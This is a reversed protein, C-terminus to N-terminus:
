PEVAPDQNRRLHGQEVEDALAGRDAGGAVVALFDEGSVVLLRGATVASVTASRPASRLLALEGFADGPGLLGPRPRGDVAVSFEGQAIAYYLHGEDGQTIVEAGADIDLWASSRALRVMENPPLAALFPIRSLVDIEHTRLDARADLRRLLPYTGALLVAGILGIPVVAQRAGWLDVLVPALAAGVALGLLSLGEQVAFVKALVREDTTRQLLTRGAVLLVAGALGSLALVAVAPVLLAAVALGAVALGQLVGSGSVVFALRDRYAVAGAVIGGVLGGIGVAGLLLGAGTEGMGLVEDAFSVGLVDIAGAFVFVVTMALLLVLAPGDGWLAAVGGLATRWGEVPDDEVQIGSDVELGLCLVLSLIGAVTACLLVSAAGAAQVGIGALIPGLVLGLGEVVSSVANASVLQGPSRVVRPLAAYHMPRAVAISLTLLTSGLIVLGVPASVVLLITTLLSSVAVLAYSTVIAARRSLRDVLGAVAPSLLGGPILQVVAAVSALGVGGADYAFLIIAVWASFEVLNFLAYALMARRLSGNAAIARLSQAYTLM